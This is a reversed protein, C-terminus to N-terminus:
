PHDNHFLYLVIFRPFLIISSVFKIFSVISISWELGNALQLFSLHLQLQQGLFIVDLLDLYYYYPNDLLHNHDLLVMVIYLILLPILLLSNNM